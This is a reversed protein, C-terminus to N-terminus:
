IILHRMEVCKGLLQATLIWDLYEIGILINFLHVSFERIYDKLLLIM